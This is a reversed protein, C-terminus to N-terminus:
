LSLLLKKQNIHKANEAIFLYIYAYIPLVVNFPQADM